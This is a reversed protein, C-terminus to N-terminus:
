NVPEIGLSCLTSSPAFAASSQASLAIAAAAVTRPPSTSRMVPTFNSLTYTALSAPKPSWGITALPALSKITAIKPSEPLCILTAKPAIPSGSSEVTSSSAVKVIASHGIFGYVNDSSTIKKNNRYKKVNGSDKVRGFM